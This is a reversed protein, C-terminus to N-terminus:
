PDDWYFLMRVLRILGLPSRNKTKTRFNSNQVPIEMRFGILISSDTSLYELRFQSFYINGAINQQNNFRPLLLTWSYVCLM